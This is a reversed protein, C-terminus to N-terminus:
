CNELTIFYSICNADLEHWMTPSMVSQLDQKTFYTSQEGTHEPLQNIKALHAPSANFFSKVSSTRMYTGPQLKAM